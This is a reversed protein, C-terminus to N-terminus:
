SPIHSRDSSGSTANRSGPHIEPGGHEGPSHSPRDQQQLDYCGLGSCQGGRIQRTRSVQCPCLARQSEEM